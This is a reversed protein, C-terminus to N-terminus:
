FDNPLNDENFIITRKNVKKPFLEREVINNGLLELIGYNDKSLKIMRKTNGEKGTIYDIEYVARVADVLASAGRSQTTNKTSHHIFIITKNEKSAWETFLQMFKRASSNSNEDTGYFAILPDFVILDYEQLKIKLQSFLSSIEVKRQNDYIVQITPSDSIDIKEKVNLNKINLIENFVKNIRNKSIEKPDESLWLFARQVENNLIARIALQIILWTKGIGGPATIMSVTQKPIPLWNKCIFQVEKEIINNVNFIDLIEISAEKLLSSIKNEISAQMEFGSLNKEQIDIFLRKIERKIFYDELIKIHDDINILPNRTLAQILIDEYEKGLYNQLIIEDITKNEKNLTLIVEIIKIHEPLYFLEKKINHNKKLLRPENIISSLVSAEINIDYIKEHM